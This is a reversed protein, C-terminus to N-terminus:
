GQRRGYLRAVAGAVLSVTGRRSMELENDVIRFIRPWHRAEAKYGKRLRVRTHAAKLREVEQVSLVSVAGTAALTTNRRRLVRASIM